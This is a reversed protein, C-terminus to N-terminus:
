YEMNYIPFIPWNISRILYIRDNPRCGVDLVKLNIKVFHVAGLLFPWSSSLIFVTELNPLSTTSKLYKSKQDLPCEFM